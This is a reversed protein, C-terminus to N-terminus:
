QIKQPFAAFTTGKKLNVKLKQGIVKLIAFATLSKAL